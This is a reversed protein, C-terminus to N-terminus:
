PVTNASDVTKASDAAAEYRMAVTGSEADVTATGGNELAGFLLEETLPRKVTDEIVRGLPRAGFTPDFGKEALLLRAADSLEITVKREGLQSSLERIFKDVIQEM